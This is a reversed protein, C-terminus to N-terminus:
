GQERKGQVQHQHRSLIAWEVGFRKNSSGNTPLKHKINRLIGRQVPALGNTHRSFPAQDEVSRQSLSLSTQSDWCFSSWAQEQKAKTDTINMHLHHQTLFAFLFVWWCYSKLIEFGLTKLNLVAWTNPFSNFILTSSSKISLQTNLSCGPPHQWCCLRSSLNAHECKCADLTM